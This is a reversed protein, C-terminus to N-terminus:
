RSPSASGASQVNRVPQDAVQAMDGAGGTNGGDDLRRPDRKRVRRTRQHRRVRCYEGTHERTSIVVLDQRGHRCIAECVVLGGGGTRTNGDCPNATDDLTLAGRGYDVDGSYFDSHSAGRVIM